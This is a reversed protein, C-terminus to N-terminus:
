PRPASVIIQSGMILFSLAVLYLAWRAIVGPLGRTVYDGLVNRVGNTGHALAFALLLWDYFRWLPNAWRQVIWDYDIRDVGVVLHMYLLHGSVTLLMVVGSARMLFWANAEFGGQARPSCLRVARMVHRQEADGTM